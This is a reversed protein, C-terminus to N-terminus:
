DKLHPAALTGVRVLVGHGPCFHQEALLRECSGIDPPMCLPGLASPVDLFGIGIPVGLNLSTWINM